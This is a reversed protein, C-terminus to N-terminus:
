IQVVLPTDQPLGTVANPQGSALLLMAMDRPARNGHKRIFDAIAGTVHPAAMSTGQMCALGGAADLGTSIICQGPAFISITSGFNSDNVPSDTIDTAGVVIVGPVRAPTIQGVDMGDNGAAAVVHVGAAISTAVEAEMQTIVELPVMDTHGQWAFLTGEADQGVLKVDPHNKVDSLAPGSLKALYAKLISVSGYQQVVKCQHETNRYKESQTEMWKLHENLNAAETLEVFYSNEVPRTQTRPMSVTNSMTVAVAREPASNVMKHRPSPDRRPSPNRRPPPDPRNALVAPVPWDVNSLDVLPNVPSSTRSASVPKTAKSM